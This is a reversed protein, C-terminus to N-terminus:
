IHSFHAWPFHYIVASIYRGVYEQQPEEPRQKIFLGQDFQEAFQNSWYMDDLRSLNYYPRRVPEKIGLKVLAAQGLSRPEEYRVGFKADAAAEMGDYFRDVAHRVTSIQTGIGTVAVAAVSQGLDDITRLIDEELHVDQTKSLAYLLLLQDMRTLDYARDVREIETAPYANATGTPWATPSIDFGPTYM